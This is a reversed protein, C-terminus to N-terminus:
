QFHAFQGHFQRGGSTPHPRHVLHREVDISALRKPQNAFGTAPLRHQRQSQHSQQRRSRSDFALRQEAPISILHLLNPLYLLLANAFRCVREHLETYTFQLNAGDEGEWILAPKNGNKALHRDLCNHSVNLKGDSFWKAHPLNWELVKTPPVFWDLLESQEGWFGEPDREAREYMKHYEDLSKVHARKSFEEPPPVAKEDLVHPDFELM